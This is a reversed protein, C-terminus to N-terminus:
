RRAKWASSRSAKFEKGRVFHDWKGTPMRWKRFRKDKKIHELIARSAAHVEPSPLYIDIGHFPTLLKKSMKLATEVNDVMQETPERGLVERLHRRVEDRVAGSESM